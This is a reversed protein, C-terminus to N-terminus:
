IAHVMTWCSEMTHKQDAILACEGKWFLLLFNMRFMASAPDGRGKEARMGARKPRVADM